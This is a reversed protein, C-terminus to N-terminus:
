TMVQYMVLGLDDRYMYIFHTGNGILEVEWGWFAVVFFTICMKRCRKALQCLFIPIYKLINSEWVHYRFYAGSTGLFRDDWFTQAQEYELDCHEPPFMEVKPLSVDRCFLAFM